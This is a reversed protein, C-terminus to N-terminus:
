LIYKLMRDLKAPRYIMAVASTYKHTYSHQKNEAQGKWAQPRGRDIRLQIQGGLAHREARRKAWRDEFANM